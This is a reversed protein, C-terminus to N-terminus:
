PYTRFAAPPTSMAVLTAFTHKVQSSRNPRWLESVGLSVLVDVVAFRSLYGRVADIHAQFQLDPPQRGVEASSRISQKAPGERRERKLRSKKGM